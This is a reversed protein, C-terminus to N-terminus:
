PHLELGSTRHESRGESGGETEGEAEGSRLEGSSAGNVYASAAGERYVLDGGSAGTRWAAIILLFAVTTGAYRGAKGIKGPALGLGLIVLSVVSLTLFLEAAEEHTHIASEAVVSEVREEQDQGTELAAWASLSLAAAVLVVWGWHRTAGGRRISWLVALAFLPVLFVLVLPFHVVAPHLPSPIMTDKEPEPESHIQTM